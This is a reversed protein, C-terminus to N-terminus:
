ILYVGEKEGFHEMAKTFIKETISGSIAKLAQLKDNEAFGPKFKILMQNPVYNGNNLGLQDDATTQQQQSPLSPNNQERLDKRCSFLTAVAIVALLLKNTKM